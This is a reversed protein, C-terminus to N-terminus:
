APHLNKRSAHCYGYSIVSVAGGSEGSRFAVCCRQSMKTRKIGDPQVDSKGAIGEELDTHLVGLVGSTMKNPAHGLMILCAYLCIPAVVVVAFFFRYNSGRLLACM